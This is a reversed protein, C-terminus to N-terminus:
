EPRDSRGLYKRYLDDIFGSADLEAIIRDYEAQLRPLDPHDSPKVMVNFYPRSILPKKLYVLQQGLNRDRVLRLTEITNMPAVDIRGTLLMDILLQHDTVLKRNLPADWFEPTYSWSQVAGVRWRDLDAMSQYHIRGMDGHRIFFHWSVDKYSREPYSLFETRDKKYSLSMVVDVNGVSVERLMRAGSQLLRFEAEIGLRNLVERMVEVDIGTLQGDQVMKFPPEPTGVVILPESVAHLSLLCVGVAFLRTLWCTLIRM